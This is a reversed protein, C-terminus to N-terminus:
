PAAFAFLEVLQWRMDDGAMAMLRLHRVPEPHLPTSWTVGEPAVVELPGWREGDLSVQLGLRRPPGLEPSFAFGLRDVLVVRGLDVDLRPPEVADLPREYAAWSTRPDRDIARPAKAPAGNSTAGWDAASLGTERLLVLRLGAVGLEEGSVGCGALADLLPAVVRRDPDDPATAWAVQRARRFREAHPPWRPPSPVLRDGSLFCLAHRAFHPGAFGDVGHADLLALVDAARADSLLAGHPDARYSDVRQGLQTWASSVNFALLLAVGGAVLGRAPAGGREWAGAALCGVAAALSPYMVSAFRPGPDSAYRRMVLAGALYLLPPLVLLEAGRGPRGSFRLADRLGARERWLLCAVAAAYVALVVVGWAPADGGSPPPAVLGTLQLPHLLFANSLEFQPGGPARHLLFRFTEGGSALNDLLLPAAGLLFGALCWGVLRASTFLQRRALLHLGAAGAFPFVLLNVWTAAGALLGFLASGRPTAGHAGLRWAALLLALGFPYLSPRGGSMKMSWVSLVLPPLALYLGAVFGAAEGLVRRVLQWGLAVTALAFAVGTLKLVVPGAGLLAFPLATVYAELAGMYPQGHFWVPLEQLRAVHLAMLGLTGEDGDIAFGTRLLIALRWAAAACLLLSLVAAPKLRPAVM